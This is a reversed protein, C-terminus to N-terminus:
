TLVEIGKKTIYVTDEAHASIEDSTITWEHEYFLRRLPYGYIVPEITIFQGEKLLEKSGDDYNPVVPEQHLEDGIGHGCLHKCSSFVTDSLSSSILHGVAGLRVGSKLHAEINPLIHNVTNALQKKLPSALPMAISKAKDVYVGKYLISMDISVIQGEQLIRNPYGQIVEHDLSASINYPFGILKLGSLARRSSLYREVERDVHELNVGPVLRCFILGFADRLIGGAERMIKYKNKM